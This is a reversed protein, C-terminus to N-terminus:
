VTPLPMWGLPRHIPYDCYGDEHWRSYGPEDGASEMGFERYRGIQVEIRKTLPSKHAVWDWPAGQDAKILIRTGDKPATSMPLWKM